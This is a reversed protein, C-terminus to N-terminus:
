RVSWHGNKWNKSIQVQTEEEQLNLQNVRDQLVGSPTIDDDDDSGIVFDFDDYIIKEEDNEDNPDQYLSLRKANTTRLSPLVVFAFSVPFIVLALFFSLRFTMTM